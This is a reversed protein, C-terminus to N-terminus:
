SRVFREPLCIRIKINSSYKKFGNKQCKGKEIEFKSCKKAKYYMKLDDDWMSEINILITRETGKSNEGAYITIPYRGYENLM